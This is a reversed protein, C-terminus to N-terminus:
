LIGVVCAFIVFDCLLHAGIEVRAVGLCLLPFVPRQVGAGAADVAVEDVVGLVHVAVDVEDARGAGLAGVAHEEGVGGVACVEGVRPLEVVQRGAVVPGAAPLEVLPPVALAVLVEVVGDEGYLVGCGDEADDGCVGGLLVAERCADLGIGGRALREAVVEKSARKDCVLRVLGGREVGAEVAVLAAVGALEVLSVEVM